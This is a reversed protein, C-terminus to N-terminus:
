GRPPIWWRQVWGGIDPVSRGEGDKAPEFRFRREVLRCTTADLDTSGSSQTITCGSVRGDAGIGLRVIVTGEIGARLAARPYDSNAIRGRSLRARSAFGGAGAGQGGGGTGSGAGGSGTGPGAQDSAGSASASGTGPALAAVAEAVELRIRPLPATVPTAEAELNPPAPANKPAAREAEVIVPEEPPPLPEVVDFLKLRDATDGRLGPTLGALLAYALLLHVAAVGAAPKTRFLRQEQYMEDRVAKDAPRLM